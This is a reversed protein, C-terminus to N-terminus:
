LDNDQVELKLQMDRISYRQTVKLVEEKETVTLNRVGAPLIEMMESLLTEQKMHADMEAQLPSRQHLLIWFDYFTRHELLNEQKTTQCYEVVEQLSIEARDGMAQLILEMLFRYQRSLAKRELERSEEDQMELFDETEPSTSRRELRQRAFVTIPSWQESHGLSLFPEALIRAATLPLPISLLQETIEKQFNFSDVGAYYLAEQAAQLASTKLEISEKLMQGHQSHVEGLEVDIKVVLEYAQRDKETTREYILRERTERVFNQLEEFERDEHSLRLHIEEITDRYRQYTTESVINRQIEHRIRIMREKLTEVAVRMEDIQRLAGWFQGRELQKRLLLQNISVQFESFYERTSFVLELGQEDLSYYQTNSKSDFKDAKLISCFVTEERRTNWDYFSRYNRKGSPPRFVEIIDRALKEFGKSDLDLEGQNLDQFFEALEKVGTQNNRLLMNEFFFLLALLGLSFYDIPRGSNDTTKKNELRYLPDFIALRQVRDKYNITVNQIDLGM